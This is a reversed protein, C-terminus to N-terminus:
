GNIVLAAVWQLLDCERIRVNRGIRFHPIKRRSVLYYVKSKSMKLYKAVDPVTMIKDLQADM